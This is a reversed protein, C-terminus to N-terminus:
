VGWGGEGKKVRVGLKCGKRGEKEKEGRGVNRWEGGEMRDGSEMGENSLRLEWEVVREIEVGRV